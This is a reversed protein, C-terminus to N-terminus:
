EGFMGDIEGGEGAWDEPLLGSAVYRHFTSYPWNVVRRVYGHKVPNFHIYAVHRAFDEEDRITHEWYRRQWIGQEGRAQATSTVFETYPLARSFLLKILRWRFPYDANGEPLTWICHMHEPLVVWADILFPHTRRVTQIASRLQDIHWILLNEKRNTLAVTFFYSGGDVFSRRYRSM